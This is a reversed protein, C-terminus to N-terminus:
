AWYPVREMSAKSCQELMLHHFRSPRNGRPCSRETIESKGEMDKYGHGEGQFQRPKEPSRRAILSRSKRKDRCHRLQLRRLMSYLLGMRAHDKFIEAVYGRLTDMSKHRSQDAVQFDVCGTRRRQDSLRVALFSRCFAQRIQASKQNPHPWSREPQAGSQRRSDRSYQGGPGFRGRSPLGAFPRERNDQRRAQSITASNTSTSLMGVGVLQRDV